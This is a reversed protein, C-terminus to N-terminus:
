STLSARALFAQTASQKPFRLAEQLPGSEHVRSEFVKHEDNSL